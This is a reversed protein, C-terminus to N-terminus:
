NKYAHKYTYAETFGIGIYMNYASKNDFDCSANIESLLSNGTIVLKSIDTVVSKLIYKGLSKGRYKKNVAVLPINAIYKNTM